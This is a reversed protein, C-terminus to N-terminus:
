SGLRHLYMDVELTINDVISLVVSVHPQTLDFYEFKFSITAHCLGETQQGQCSVDWTVPKTVSRITLDGTLKFSAQGSSPFSSPLGTAQTPVFTADPYQDTQLVNRRLFNDRQSRDSQLTSLDVVFRSQSSVITGNTKGVLTGTIASTKGIADSPLSLSALQERVRYRAESKAPVVGLIITDGPSNAGTQGAVTPVATASEPGPPSPQTTPQVAPTLQVSTPEVTTAPAAPSSACGAALWMITTSVLVFRIASCLM